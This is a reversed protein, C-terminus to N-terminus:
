TTKRLGGHRSKNRANLVIVIETVVLVLGPLLMRAGILSPWNLRFDQMWDVALLAAGGFLLV